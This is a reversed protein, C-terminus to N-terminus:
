FFKVLEPICLDGNTNRVTRILHEINAIDELTINYRRQLYNAYSSYDDKDFWVRADDSYENYENHSGPSGLEKMKLALTHWIPLGRSWAELSCGKNYLLENRYKQIKLPNTTKFHSVLTWSITQIIRPPMRTMRLRGDNGRFFDCSLFEMDEIDGTKVMKCVQGLGYSVPQKPKEFYFCKNHAAIFDGQVKQDHATLMDDGKALLFYQEIGALYYVFKYYARNLMTNGFSTWGDGSARAQMEYFLQHDMCCKLDLSHNLIDVLVKFSLPEKITINKHSFCAIILDHLLKNHRSLQTIDFGSGDFCNFIVRAIHEAKEISAAIQPWDKRGCYEPCYKDAIYELKKIFPNAYCKKWSAPGCIQREKVQNKGTNKEFVNCETFQLEKKVFSQYTFDLEEEYPARKLAKTLELRQNHTYTTTSLWEDYDVVIHENDIYSLFEPIIQDYWFQSFKEFMADEPTLCNKTHALVSALGVRPCAHKITPTSFKNLDYTLLPFVQIAGVDYAGKTCCLEKYEGKAKL